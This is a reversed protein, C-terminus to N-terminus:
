RICIHTIKFFTKHFLVKPIHSADRYKKFIIESFLYQNQGGKSIKHNALQKYSIVHFISSMPLCMDGTRQTRQPEETNFAHINQWVFTIRTNLSIYIDFM